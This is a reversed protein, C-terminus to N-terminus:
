YTWTKDWSGSVIYKGDPSFAVSTVRDTHGNLQLIQTGTSSNWMYVQHNYSGSVIHKSDPSFAVSSVKDTHGNLQLLEAGTSSNWILVTNDWSGSVIHKGDPSFAVSTVWNTHKDLQMLEAGTFSDWMRVSCDWSGSVIHKGDPSFAVSTVAKAHGDLQKFEASISNWWNWLLISGDQGGSVIHKSDSSFAVSTVNFRESSFIFDPFSSHYWFINGEKVYLVSYLEQIFTRSCEKMDNNDDSTLLEAAIVTSIREEACLVNCLIKLRKQIYEVHLGSFANSLIQSYLMDIQITAYNLGKNASVDLLQAMLKQQETKTLSANPRIYKVATSAFIFLGDAKQMLTTLQPDNQLKPLEDKLYTLIDANVEDTAIDYLHCVADSSFSKCLDVIKSDPRSTVLFKLGHLAGNEITKLLEELFTSGEGNKIEDLADIVVLFPPLDKFETTVTCWPDALLDKMQKNIKNVSDLKNNKFLSKAFSLFNETEGDIRRLINEVNAKDEDSELIVKWTSKESMTRLELIDEILSQSFGEAVMRFKADEKEIDILAQNVTELRKMTQTFLGQLADKNNKINNGLEILINVANIPVKFPTGDLLKEAKNFLMQFGLWTVRMASSETQHDQRHAMPAHSMESKIGGSGETQGTTIGVPFEVSSIDGSGDGLGHRLDDSAFAPTTNSATASIAEMMRPGTEHVNNCPSTAAYAARSGPTLRDKLRDFKEMLVPRKPKQPNFM